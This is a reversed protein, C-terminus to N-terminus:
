EFVTQLLALLTHSRGRFSGHYLLRLIYVMPNVYPPQILNEVLDDTVISM